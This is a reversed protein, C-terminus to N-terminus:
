LDVPIGRFSRNGGRSSGTKVEGELKTIASQVASLDARRLTRSGISYEQGALIMKEAEYYMDLRKKKRELEEKTM